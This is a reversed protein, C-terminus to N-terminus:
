YRTHGGNAAVCDICRQRMSNVLRALFAQPIANWEQQLWDLLQQRNAAPPHNDRIRRGLEAWVHEIPNLDPSNAPWPMRNIGAQHLFANVARARHPRANDDQLVANPGIQQLGPIVLPQLIEELYRQGNLNGNIHYLPTRHHTSIGAWVMVSGGGFPVHEQIVDDALRERPRRWVRIRGDTPHLCFRSEDSFM